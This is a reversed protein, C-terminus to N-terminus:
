RVFPPNSTSIDAMPVPARDVFMNLTRMNCGLLGSRTGPYHVVTEDPGSCSGIGANEARRILDTRQVDVCLLARNERKIEGHRIDRLGHHCRISLDAADYVATGAEGESTLWTNCCASKTLMEM